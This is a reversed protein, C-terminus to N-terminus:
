FPPNRLTGNEFRAMVEKPDKGDSILFAALYAADTIGNVTRSSSLTNMVAAIKPNAKVFAVLRLIYRGSHEYRGSWPAHVATGWQQAPGCKFGYYELLERDEALISVRDLM